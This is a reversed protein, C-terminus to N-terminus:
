YLEQPKLTYERVQLLQKDFTLLKCKNTIALHLYLADYSTVKYKFMLGGLSNVESSSFGVLKIGSKIVFNIFGEIDKISYIKKWYLANLIEMLIFEPAYLEKKNEVLDNRLKTVSNSFDDAKSIWELVVSADIIYM